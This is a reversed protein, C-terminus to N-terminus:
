FFPFLPCPAYKQTKSFNFKALDQTTAELRKQYWEITQQYELRYSEATKKGDLDEQSTADSMLGKLHAIEEELQDRAKTVALFHVRDSFIQSM